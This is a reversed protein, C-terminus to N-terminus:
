SRTCRFLSNRWDSIIFPFIMGSNALIAKLVSPLVLFPLTDLIAHFIKLIYHIITGSTCM